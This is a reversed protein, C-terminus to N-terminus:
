LRSGIVLKLFRRFQFDLVFLILLICIFIAIVCYSVLDLSYNRLHIWWISIAFLAPQAFYILFVTKVKSRVILQEQIYLLIIIRLPISCLILLSFVAVVKTQNLFIWKEVIPWSCVSFLCVIFSFGISHRYRNITAVSEWEALNSSHNSQNVILCVALLIDVFRFIAAYGSFSDQFIMSGFIIFIWTTSTKLLNGAVLIAREKPLNDWNSFSKERIAVKCLTFLLPAVSFFLQCFLFTVPSKYFLLVLIGFVQGIIRPLVVYNWSYSSNGSAISMWHINIGNTIWSLFSLTVLFKNELSTFQIFLIGLSTCFIFRSFREKVSSRFNFLMKEEKIIKPGFTVWGGDVVEALVLGIGQGTAVSQWTGIGFAHITIPLLVISFIIPIVTLPSFALYRYIDEKKLLKSVLTYLDRRSKM